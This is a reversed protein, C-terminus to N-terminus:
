RVAVKETLVANIEAIGKADLTGAASKLKLVNILYDYKSRSYSTQADFLRRRADLVDVTTRTGVEYGAETAQLATRASELSQRLARVRAMESVVGLYADRTSRETERATAELRERAARHRFQAERVKSSTYGGSYIPVTLQLSVSRSDSESDAPNLSGSLTRTGDTESGDRGVVLDLSPYHGGRESSVNDRAIDAALRSSTLALNQDMALKVWDEESAPDPPTLPMDEGPRVLEPFTEGTLERLGEQRSALTRKALIVSANAEDAAAKAEQVDTIAILGVEFRREAQELQRAVAEQTATAADLSDKASLVNFYAEAAREVLLQQAAQYDAEAQAVTSDARRLAVWNQWRFVSQRLTLDWRTTETESESQTRAVIANGLPDRSLFTAEGDSKDDSFAGSGTLQPLLASLAQPKSELSALRNAEAERIRPDNQLARQYVDALDASQALPSAVLAAALLLSRVHRRVIPTDLRPM